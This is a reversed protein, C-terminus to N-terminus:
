NKKITPAESLLAIVKRRFGGMSYGDFDCKQCLPHDTESKSLAERLKKFKENSWIEKLSNKNKDGVYLM